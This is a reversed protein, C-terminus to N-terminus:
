LDGGKLFDFKGKKKLHGLVMVLIVVVIIVIMIVTFNKKYTQNKQITNKM